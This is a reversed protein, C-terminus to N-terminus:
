LRVKDPNEADDTWRMPNELVYQRIRTLDDEDRIVHEYYNRQWLRGSFPQWRQERVGRIYSNTTMTKFWDVVDGLTFRGEPSIGRRPEAVTPAGGHPHGTGCGAYLGGCTGPRGCPAAGVILVIGHFHNPMVAHEALDLGTFKSPLRHWWEEVMRGAHNLQMEGAVVEGFLCARNQVCVTVFYAGVQSYDYGVLRLPRRHPAGEESSM